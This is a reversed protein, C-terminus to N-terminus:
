DKCFKRGPQSGHRKEAQAREQHVPLVGHLIVLGSHALFGRASVVHDINGTAQFLATLRNPVVDSVLIARGPFEAALGDVERFMYVVYDANRTV